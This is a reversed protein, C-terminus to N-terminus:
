SQATKHTLDLAGCMVKIEDALLTGGLGEDAAHLDVLAKLQGRRCSSLLL